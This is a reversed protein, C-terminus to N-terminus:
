VAPSLAEHSSGKFNMEPYTLRLLENILECFGTCIIYGHM